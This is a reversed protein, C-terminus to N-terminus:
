ELGRSRQLGSALLYAGSFKEVIARLSNITFQSILGDQLGAHEFIDAVSINGQAHVVLCLSQETSGVCQARLCGAPIRRVGCVAEISQGRCQPQLTLILFRLWHKPLREGQPLFLKPVITTEHRLAHTIQSLTQVPFATPSFRFRKKPPRQSGFALQM